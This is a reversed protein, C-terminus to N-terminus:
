PPDWQWSFINRYQRGSVTRFLKLDVCGNDTGQSKEGQCVIPSGLGTMEHARESICCIGKNPYSQREQARAAGRKVLGFALGSAKCLIQVYGHGISNSLEVNSEHASRDNQRRHGFACRGLPGKRVELVRRAPIDFIEWFPLESTRCFIKLWYLLICRFSLKDIGIERLPMIPSFMKQTLAQDAGQYCLSM